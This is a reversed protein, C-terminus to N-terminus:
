GADMTFAYTKGCVFGSPVAGEEAHFESALWPVIRAGERQVTLSEFINPFVDAHQYQASLSPDLSQVVAVNPIHIMGGGAKRFVAAAASETKGLEAYKVYPSSGYLTLGRVKSSAVRYDIDHFLPLLFSTELLHNEIKRYIKERVSPDSAVRGEEMWRDLDPSSYFNYLGVKSHFLFYTFNDPDDYDANYRAQNRRSNKAMIGASSLSLRKIAFFRDLQHL